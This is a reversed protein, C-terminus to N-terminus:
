GRDYSIDIDTKLIDFTRKLSPDSNPASHDATGASTGTVTDMQEVLSM